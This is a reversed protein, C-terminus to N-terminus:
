AANAASYSQPEGCFASMDDQDRTCDTAKLFDIVCDLSRASLGRKHRTIECIEFRDVREPRCKQFAELFEIDEDAISTRESIHSRKGM